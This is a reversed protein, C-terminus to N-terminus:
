FLRSSCSSKKEGIIQVYLLSIRLFTATRNTVVKRSTTSDGLLQGQWHTPWLTLSDVLNQWLNWKQGFTGIKVLLRMKGFTGKKKVLPGMKVLLAVTGGHMDNNERHIILHGRACWQTKAKRWEVGCYINESAVILDFCCCFSFTFPINTWSHPHFSNVHLVGFANYCFAFSLHM